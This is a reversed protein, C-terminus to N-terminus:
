IGAETDATFEIGEEKISNRTEGPSQFYVAGNDTDPNLMGIAVIEGTLPSFALGEIAEQVKEGTDAFKLLYEKSMEDFSVFNTGITEIDVILSKTMTTKLMNVHSSAVLLEIVLLWLGIDTNYYALRLFQM